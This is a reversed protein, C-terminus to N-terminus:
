RSHESTIFRAMEVVLLPQGKSIQAVLSLDYGRRGSKQSAKALSYLHQVKTATNILDPSHRCYRKLSLTKKICILCFDIGPM